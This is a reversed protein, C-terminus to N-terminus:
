VSTIVSTQGSNENKRTAQVTITKPTVSKTAIVSTAVSSKVTSTIKATALSITPFPNTDMYSEPLTPIKESIKSSQNDIKDHNLNHKALIESTLIPIYPTNLSEGAQSINNIQKLIMWM